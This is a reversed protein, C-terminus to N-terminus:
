GPKLSWPFFNVFFGLAREKSHTGAAWLKLGVSISFKFFFYNYMLQSFENFRSLDQQLQKQAHGSFWNRLRGVKKSQKKQGWTDIVNVLKQHIPLDQSSSPLFEGGPM